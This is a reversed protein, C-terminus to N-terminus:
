RDTASGSDRRRSVLLFVGIAVAGTLTVGIVGAASRSALSESPGFQYDALPSSSTPSDQESSLFGKSEAVHELGDPASSAWLSVIGAILLCGIMGLVLLRRNRPPTANRATSVASASM